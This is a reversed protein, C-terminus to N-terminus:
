GSSPTLWRRWAQSTFNEAPPPHCTESYGRKNFTTVRPLQHFKLRYVCDRLAPMPCRPEKRRNKLSLGSM